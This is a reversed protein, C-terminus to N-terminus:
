KLDRAAEQEAIYDRAPEWDQDGPEPDDDQRTREDWEHDFPMAGPEGNMFPADM